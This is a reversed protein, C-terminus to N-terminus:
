AVCIAAETLLVGVSQVCKVAEQGLTKALQCDAIRFLEFVTHCIVQNWLICGHVGSETEIKTHYLIRTLVQFWKPLHWPDQIANSETGEPSLDGLPTVQFKKTENSWTWSWVKAFREEFAGNVAQWLRVQAQPLREVLEQENCWDPWEVLGSM